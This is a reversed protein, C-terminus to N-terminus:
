SGHAVGLCARALRDSRSLVVSVAPMRPGKSIGIIEMVASTRLDGDWRLFCGAFLIQRRGYSIRAIALVKPCLTARFLM